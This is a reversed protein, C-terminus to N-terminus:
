APEAAAPEHRRVSLRGPIAPTAAEAAPVDVTMEVLGFQLRQGAKVAAESVARGDLFTGNTSGLDKVRISDEACTIECHFSSVSPHEIQIDNDSNRGIRNVGSKLFLEQAPGGGNNFLLKAM